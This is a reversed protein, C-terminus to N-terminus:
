LMLCSILLGAVVSVTRGSMRRDVASAAPVPKLTEGARFLLGSVPRVPQLQLGHRIRSYGASISQVGSADQRNLMALEAAEEPALESDFSVSLLESRRQLNDDLAPIKEPSTTM